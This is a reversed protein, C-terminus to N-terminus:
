LGVEARVNNVVDQALDLVDPRTTEVANDVFHIGKGGNKGGVYTFGSPNDIWTGEGSDLGLWENPIYHPKFGEDIYKSRKLPSDIVIDTGRLWADMSDALRGSGNTNANIFDKVNELLVDKTADALELPVERELKTRFLKFAGPNWSKSIKISVRM